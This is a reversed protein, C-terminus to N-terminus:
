THKVVQVQYSRGNVTVKYATGAPQPPQPQSLRAKLDELERSFERWARHAEEVSM